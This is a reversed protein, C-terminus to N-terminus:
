FEGEATAASPLHASEGAFTTPRRSTSSIQPSSLRSLVHIAVAAHFLYNVQGHSGSTGVRPQPSATQVEVHEAVGQRVEQVQAAEEEPQVERGLFM